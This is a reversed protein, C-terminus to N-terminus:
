GRGAPLTFWFRSGTGEPASEVGVIGGHREVIKKVLALGIGTGPYENRTHLRKFMGFIQDRHRAEIGIGNDTVSFRCQNGDLAAGVSIKPAVGASAFKLANTLLNQFVLFLQEPDAMVIPLRGVHVDAHTEDIQPALSALVATVVAGSDVPEISGEVRGVRSFALLGDILSQMRECGDVAYAIFQESEPDLQGQYRRAVLSIPGAIARLPESLDHSAVYAFQELEENSRALEINTKELERSRDALLELVQKDETVDRNTEVTVLPHGARVLGAVWSGAVIILEGNKRRQVLEGQWSGTEAVQADIAELAVPFRTNLLEPASRGLAEDASYGYTLEAGHNWTIIVHRPGSVFVADLVLDFLFAQRALLEEAQEVRRLGLEALRGRELSLPSRAM